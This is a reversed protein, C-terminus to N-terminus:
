SESTQNCKIAVIKNEQHRGTRRHNAPKDKGWWASGCGAKGSAQEGAAGTGCRQDQRLIELLYLGINRWRQNHIDDNIKGM